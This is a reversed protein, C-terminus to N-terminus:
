RTGCLLPMARQYTVSPGDYADIALSLTTTDVHVRQPVQMSDHTTVLYTELHQTLPSNRQELWYPTTNVVTGNVLTTMQQATFILERRQNPDAPSTRGNMGNTSATLQWQGVLLQTPAAAPAAADKSCSTLSVVGVLVIGFLLSSFSQYM